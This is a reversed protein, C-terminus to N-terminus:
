FEIIVKSFSDETKQYKYSRLRVSYVFGICDYSNSYVSNVSVTFVYSVYMCVYM